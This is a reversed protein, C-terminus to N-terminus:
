DWCDAVAEVWIWGGRMWVEFVMGSLKGWLWRVEGVAGVVEFVRM